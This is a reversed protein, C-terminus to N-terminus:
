GVPTIAEFLKPLRLISSKRSIPSKFQMITCCTKTLNELVVSSLVIVYHAVIVLKFKLSYCLM